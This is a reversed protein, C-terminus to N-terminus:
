FRFYFGASPQVLWVQSSTADIGRLDLGIGTMRTIRINLGVGFGLAFETHGGPASNGLNESRLGGIAGSVYPSVRWPLSLRVGGMFEHIKEDPLPACNGFLCFGNDGIRAFTYNGTVAVHPNLYYAGEVGGGLKPSAGLITSVDLASNVFGRVESRGLDASQSFSIGCFALMCALLAKKMSRRDIPTKSTRVMTANKNM